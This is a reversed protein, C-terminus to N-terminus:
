VAEGRARRAQRDRGIMLAQEAKTMPIATPLIRPKVVRTWPKDQLQKAPSKIYKPETGACVRVADRGSALKQETTLSAWLRGADARERDGIAVGAAIFIEMYNEFLVDVQTVEIAAIVPVIDTVQFIPARLSEPMIWSLPQKVFAMVPYDEARGWESAFYGDLAAILEAEDIEVTAWRM